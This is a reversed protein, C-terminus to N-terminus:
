LIPGYAERLFTKIKARKMCLDRFLLFMAPSPPTLRYDWCKGPQPLHGM